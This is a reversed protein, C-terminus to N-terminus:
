LNHSIVIAELLRILPPVAYWILLATLIVWLLPDTLIHRYHKM